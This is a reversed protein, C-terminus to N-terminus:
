HGNRPPHITSIQEVTAEMMREARTVRREMDSLRAALVRGESGSFPDKRANVNNRLDRIEMQNSLIVDVWIQKETEHSKVHEQTATLIIRSERIEDQIGVINASMNAYLVTVVAGFATAIAGTIFIFLQTKKEEKVSDVRRELLPETDSM